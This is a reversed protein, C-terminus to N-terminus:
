AEWTIPRKPVAPVGAALMGAPIDKTVVSGAAVVAGDGITVGALVTVRMGIWVHNGITIGSQQAVGHIVHGDDDRAVFFPGIHDDEGIRIERMCSIRAENNIMGSGLQLRAGPAIGIRAGSMINFRGRVSCSSGKKM